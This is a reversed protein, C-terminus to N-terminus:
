KLDAHVEHSASHKSKKLDKIIFDTQKSTKKTKM